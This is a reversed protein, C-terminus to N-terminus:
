AAASLPQTYREGTQVCLHFGVAQKQAYCAYAFGVSRCNMLPTSFTAALRRAFHDPTGRRTPNAEQYCEFGDFDARGFWWEARLGGSQTSECGCCDSRWSVVPGGLDAITRRM